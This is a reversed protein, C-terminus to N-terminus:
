PDAELRPVEFRPASDDRVVGVLLLLAFSCLLGARVSFLGKVEGFRSFSVRVLLLLAVSRLLGGRDSFLCNVGGDCSFLILGFLM